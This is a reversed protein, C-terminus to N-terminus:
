TMCSTGGGPSPRWAHDLGPKTLPHLAIYGSTARPSPAYLIRDERGDEGAALLMWAPWRIMPKAIYTAGLPHAWKRMSVRLSVCLSAGMPGVSSDSVCAAKVSVRLSVYILLNASMLGWIMEM